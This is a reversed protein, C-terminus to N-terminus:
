ISYKAETTGLSNHKEERLSAKKPPLKLPTRWKLPDRSFLVETSHNYLLM